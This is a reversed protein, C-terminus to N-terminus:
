GHKSLIRALQRERSKDYNSINYGKRKLRPDFMRRVTREIGPKLAVVIPKAVLYTAKAGLEISEGVASLYSEYGERREM